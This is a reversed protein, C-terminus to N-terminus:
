PNEARESLHQVLLAIAEHKTQGSRAVTYSDAKRWTRAYWRDRIRETIPYGYGLEALADRAEDLTM